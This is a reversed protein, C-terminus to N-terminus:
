GLEDRHVNLKKGDATVARISIYNFMDSYGGATFGENGNGEVDEFDWYNKISIEVTVRENRTKFLYEELDKKDNEAADCGHVRSDFILHEKKCRDCVAKIIVTYDEPCLANMENFGLPIGGKKFTHTEYIGGNKSRRSVTIKRGGDELCQDSISCRFPLGAIRKYFEREWKKTASVKERDEKSLKAKKPVNKLLTFTEGGCTCRISFTLNEDKASRFVGIQRLYQPIPVAM